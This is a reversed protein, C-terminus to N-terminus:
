RLRWEDLRSCLRTVLPFVLISLIIQPVMLLPNGAGGIAMSSVIVLVIIASALGWEALFERWIMRRDIIDYGILILTWLLMSTGMVAGSFADDWAGLAFGIWVPWLHRHLARWALFVILGWPPMLPITAIIPLLTVMSAIMTTAIPVANRRFASPNRGIRAPPPYAM